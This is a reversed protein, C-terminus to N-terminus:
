VVETVGKCILTTMNIRMSAVDSVQIQKIVRHATGIADDMQGGHPKQM